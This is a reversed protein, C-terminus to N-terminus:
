GIGHVRALHWVYILLVGIVSVSLAVYERNRFWHSWSWGGLSSRTRLRPFFRPVIKTYSPWEVPFLFQLRKEEFRVQMRYLFALPGAVMILNPIDRMLICFGFMMAFSGVYLPNRTLAYPGHQTLTRSKDLTGSAWSRIALGGILLLMACVVPLNNWQFPHLPVARAVVVNFICFATFCLFSIAIRRRAFFNLVPRSLLSGGDQTWLEVGM